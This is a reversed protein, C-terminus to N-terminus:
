KIQKEKLRKMEMPFQRNNYMLRSIYGYAVKRFVEEDEDEICDEVFWRFMKIVNSDVTKDYQLRDFADTLNMKLDGYMKEMTIAKSVLDWRGAKYIMMNSDHINSIYVNHNQQMKESFHKMEFLRDISGKVRRFCSMFMADTIHSMDEKGYVNITINTNNSNNNSNSNSNITNKNTTTTTSQTRMEKVENKLQELEDYFLKEKDQSQKERDHSQQKLDENEQKLKEFLAQLAIEEPQPNKLECQFKRNLHRALLHKNQFKSFCRNCQFVVKELPKSIVVPPVCPNKRNVHYNYNANTSFCKKCINCTSM